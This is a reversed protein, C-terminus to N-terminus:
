TSVTSTQPISMPATAGIGHVATVVSSGMGPSTRAYSDIRSVSCGLSRQRRCGSNSTSTVCLRRPHTSSRRGPDLELHGALHHRYAQEICNALSASRDISLKLAIRYTSLGHHVYLDVIEETAADLPCPAVPHLDVQRVAAHQAMPSRRSFMSDRSAMLWRPPEPQRRRPKMGCECDYHGDSTVSAGTQRGVENGMDAKERNKGGPRLKLRAGTRDLGREPVGARHSGFSPEPCARAERM